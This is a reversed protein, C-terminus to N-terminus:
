RAVLRRAMVAQGLSLGGDNPPVLRHTLVTFGSAHLADLTNGLLVANQFVGGSLGVAGGAGRRRLRVCVSVIMDVVAGHFAAAIRGPPCGHLRLRVVDALITRWGILLPRTQPEQQPISFPALPEIADVESGAAAELLLAAEAEYSVVQRLGILSAVADFLRGMSSAPTVAFQRDLQRALVRREQRSAASVPPLREHWPLGAAHLAALATRWPQRICVDGGPLPLPALHAVRTLDDERVSFFEGGHITGDDGYGTGDFCVGISGKPIPSVRHEAWVAALHAEHHQIRVLPVGQEAAFRCAWDASLSGPHLDAAVAAPRVDLLDMQRRAARDFATLTELNEMDGVHQGLFATTGRTICIATKLEGGVALVPPGDEPLPLTLPVSGRSCRIPLVQGRVCRIVADDCPSVITRDHLLFGDALPALRRRAEDNDIAIPEEALNGSTMVLPPMGTCLLDHLPSAPLMIGVVDIGPAVAAALQPTAGDLRKRLLVIPRDAAALLREEREDIRALRAAATIDQVLVAFPKRSRRKRHRLLEVAATNTADCALQFGGIGKVALIGGRRLFAQAAQLAAEARPPPDTAEAAVDPPPSSESRRQEFWLVPGCQPCAITQAHFRRSTPDHYERACASCMPFADMTTRARDYPLSTIITFRPGCDCCSTFAHGYRRNTPDHMEALCATCTAVDPPPLTGSSGEHRSDLIAFPRHRGSAHPATSEEVIQDIRCLPPREAPLRVRFAAIRASPGSVEITVGGADNAVFGALDLEAALRWVFPRFGVGQVIGTLRFRRHIPGGAPM